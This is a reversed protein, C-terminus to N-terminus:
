NLNLIGKKRHSRGTELEHGGKVAGSVTSNIPTPKYVISPWSKTDNNVRRHPQGVELYGRGGTKKKPPHSSEGPEEASAQGGRGAYGEWSGLLV